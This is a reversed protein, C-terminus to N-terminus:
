AADPQDPEDFLALSAWLFEIVDVAQGAEVSLGFIEPAGRAFVDHGLQPRRELWGALAKIQHPTSRIFVQNQVARFQV